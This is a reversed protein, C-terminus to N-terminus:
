RGCPLREDGAHYWGPLMLGEAVAVGVFASAVGRDVQVRSSWRGSCDGQSSSWLGVGQGGNGNSFARVEQAGHSLSLTGETFPNTSAALLVLSPAQTAVHLTADYTGVHPGFIFARAAVGHYELPAATFPRVEGRAVAYVGPDAFVRLAWGDNAPLGTRALTLDVRFAGPIVDGDFGLSGAGLGLALPDPEHLAIGAGPAARSRVTVVAEHAHVMSAGASFWGGGAYSINALAIAASADAREGGVDGFVIDFALRGAGVIELTLNEWGDEPKFVRERTAGEMASGARWEFSGAWWDDSGPRSADVQFWIADGPAAAGRVLVRAEGTANTRLFRWDDANFLSVTMNAAPEGDRTVRVHAWLWQQAPVLLPGCGLCPLEPAQIGTGLVSQERALPPYAVSDDYGVLVMEVDLAPSAEPVLASALPAGLLLLALLSRSPVFPRAPSTAM